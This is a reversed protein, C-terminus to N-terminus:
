RILVIKGWDNKFARRDAEASTARRSFKNTPDDLIVRYLYTGNALRDGYTDTGDWAYGTINNGIRLPGKATIDEMMIEKVVRGTLTLIQIKMDRPLEAGTLTFVFQAKSTVPNPYPFVNTITSANVVEFTVRYPESGAPKNTADRGQVELTYIGDALAQTKGMDLTLVALGRTSDSEFIVNSGNLNLRTATTQGPATLLVDFNNVDKIRRLRDDDKLQVRIIPTPSVIEGNLIRRGDFAVDLVPPTNRDDVQFAPLLLENNFFYLEPLAQPEAATAPRPNVVVNGSISGDLGVVNVSANFSVQSNAALPGGPVDVLATRTAGGNSLTIRAKLAGSFNISSVNEFVVPVTVSGTAAAQRALTAADYATAPTALDRRVIGEPVGQYTVLWQELQPATRNVTDRLTLVLKLYPYQQASIGALSLSRSTVNPNLVSEVDQANIGVLQLTYSDSADPLRVTHYLTEWQRAPGIRTSSVTGSGGRTGIQGSLTIVQSSRPTSSTPDATVEQAPRANPGKQVLLAYPDGDQLSNIRTAGLGALVTKLSAPFASFNVKNMSLLAIYDGPQVNTLLAQLQAQRAPTNINDTATTAFHYFRLDGQGCSDYLGGGVNRVPRLTQGSFVAVMINPQSVACNGVFPLSAATIGDTVQNFTPASGNGGGRTNLGIAQTVADAFEWRGSPAAVNVRALQDRKFQGHHSQSWGGLTGPIVRFSSTAWEPNENLTPDPTQFRLRWYWVVSDRGTLTPLTPRWDPVLTTTVTRTQKLGSNFTPVTDLEMEYSRSTGRPDNTQGVLRLGAAPVIAFEPPWLTTVGGQLFNFCAQGSNNTESLEAIRQQYDLEVQFCNEGFVNGANPLVFAYTTDRRAQRVTYTYVDPARTGASTTPYRRTVRVDLPDTTIKGPNKVNVVVKLSTASAQLPGAGNPQIQVDGPQNAIFDPKDPAFFRLAPDGLWVNMLSQSIASPIDLQALMRRSAEAQIVTIPKGYFAPDNFALKYFNTSFADLNQEFGLDSDSMFGISGKNEAFIWNESLTRVETGLNTFVANVSCGNILFVPYKNPNNYGKGPDTPDGFNLDLDLVQGHGFYSVLSVGANVEPAITMSIPLNTGPSEARRYTKVVTGGFLPREVLRKYQDMYREFRVFEDQNKGGAMHVISKRWPEAGLAEYTKLKNLYNLVEVPTRASVRGTPMRAVYNNNEWDASLFNDSASRTPGPILDISPALSNRSYEGVMLGKGLLLLYNTQTAPSNALEWRVYNRIAGVSKEGYHFQDYLQQSTVVVTDYRGGATSARYTAYARVADVGGIPRMLVSHSIILFNTTAANLTRFRIRTAPRPVSAVAEDALVLSRTRNAADPFVYGRRQGGLAAGAVRQVNYPDTVDFGAVTAPISDLAYYAPGALTSDNLFSLHKRGAFWRSTQSYSYHAYAVRFKNNNNAPPTGSVNFFLNIKGDIGFDAPQLPLRLLQKNYGSIAASGLLRKTVSSGPTFVSVEVTRQGPWGGVLLVEVMPNRGTVSRSWISDTLASATLQENRFTGGFSFSLFGEGAEGWPQYVNSADDVYAIAYNFMELEKRIRHPHPAATPTVAPQPMRKGNATASWTLFYAATDTYLSYLDHPQTASGGKYIAQDLKGDNRQGYFEFYTTADLTTQNGGGFIAVERGRRWLQVRQPNVGSIGAQALYQQDLRYLGDKLIKIKYYQQSPVIWENGYLTQASASGATLLSLLVLCWSLLYRLRYPQTM